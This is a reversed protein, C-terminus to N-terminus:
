SMIKVMQRVIEEGMEITTSNGGLDPTLKEGHETVKEIAKLIIRALDGRGFSQLMLATSWIQAIPNAKGKGAIDPASGHVPEFMSPFVGEPNINASPSIGLGGVLASGLDSLIDGFLNSAVIVQLTDPRQVFYAALADIYY